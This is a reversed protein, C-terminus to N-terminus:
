SLQFITYIVHLVSCAHIFDFCLYKFLPSVLFINILKLFLWLISGNKITNTSSTSTLTNIKRVIVTSSNYKNSNRERINTVRNQDFLFLMKLLQISQSFDFFLTNRTQIPIFPIEIARNTRYILTQSSKYSM